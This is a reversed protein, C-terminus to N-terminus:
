KFPNFQSEYVIEIDKNQRKLSKKAAEDSSYIYSEGNDDSLFIQSNKSTLLVKYQSADKNPILTAKVAAKINAVALKTLRSM